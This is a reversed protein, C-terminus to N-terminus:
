LRGMELDLNMNIADAASAVCSIVGSGDGNLNDANQGLIDITLNLNSPIVEEVNTGSNDGGNSSKESSCSTTLLMLLFVIRFM